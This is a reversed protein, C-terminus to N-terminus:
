SNWCNLTSNHIKNLSDLYPIVYKQKRYNVVFTDSNLEIVLIKLAKRSIKLEHFYELSIIIWKEYDKETPNTLHNIAILDRELIRRRDKRIVEADPKNCQINAGYKRNIHSVFGTIASFQGQKLRLYTDLQEQSPKKWRDIGLEVYIGVAPQLALRISKLSTKKLALKENLFAYYSEIPEPLVEFKNLLNAIREKEAIEHKIELDVVVQETDILWRLVTLHHRLGEPKFDQVLSTYTPIESWIDDCTKFFATFKLHELTVNKNDTREIFWKIFAEYSIKIKDSKFLYLNIAVERQLRHGWYCSECEKGQGAPMNEGCCPCTIEGLEHCKQCLVGTPTDIVKRFRRCASCTKRTERQYCSVCVENDHPLEAYRSVGIKDKGCEQCTKKKKFYGQYCIQCVRGYETNAGNVSSDKGCRKCPQGSICKRCIPEHEKKHLRSITNCRSCPQKIFWIKYCNACYGEGKYRRKIDVPHNGCWDCKNKTASDTKTM